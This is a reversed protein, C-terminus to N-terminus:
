SWSLHKHFVLDIAEKLFEAEPSIIAQYFVNVLAQYQDEQNM